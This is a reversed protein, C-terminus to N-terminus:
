SKEKSAEWAEMDLARQSAGGLTEGVKYYYDLMYPSFQYVKFRFDRDRNMKRWFIYTGLCAAIEAAVVISVGIGFKKHWTTQRAAKKM